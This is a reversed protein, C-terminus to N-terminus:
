NNAQKIDTSTRVFGINPIPPSELDRNSSKISLACFTDIDINLDKSRIQKYQQQNPSPVSESRATFSSERTQSVHSSVTENLLENISIGVDFRFGLIHSTSCYSDTEDMCDLETMGVMNDISTQSEIPQRSDLFFPFSRELGEPIEPTPYCQYLDIQCYDFQEPKSEQPLM